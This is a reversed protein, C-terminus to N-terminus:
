EYRLVEAPQVRSARYAPYLTALFSILLAATCVLLVELVRVEAQLHSVLYVEYGLVTSLLGELLLSLEDIGWAMPLGLGAGLATGVAGAVLGQLMFVAMIQRSSAGMTRLIAIDAGKDAVAMVLTSVINVAGVAVIMLLMLATMIKEMTLANFLSASSVYWPTIELAGAASMNDATNAVGTERTEALAQAAAREAIPGAQFVDTVRLRLAPRLGPDAAFLSEAQAMNVLAMDDNGYTGFDGIGVVQFGRSDGFDRRLLSPLPTIGVENNGFGGGFVGLRAALRGGLVIGDPVEGLRELLIQFSRNIEAQQSDDGRDFDTGSGVDVTAAELQPVVGRLRIFGSSGQHRLVAEGALFPAAAVVDADAMFAEALATWDQGSSGRLLVHPVSKLAEERLVTVSGNMVSLAVILVFVGLSVGLMSILSVFSLLFNRKRALTYRLGVFM